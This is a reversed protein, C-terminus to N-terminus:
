PSPGVYLYYIRPTIIDLSFDSLEEQVERIGTPLFLRRLVGTSTVVDVPHAPDGTGGPRAFLDTVDALGPRSEIGNLLSEVPEVIRAFKQNFIRFVEVNVDVLGYDSIGALSAAKEIADTDGGVADVLGLRVAENGNYIRAQLLDERSIRLKDGREAAVTQYFNEKAQDLIRLFDRRSGGGSLKQPGTSIIRESPAPPILPGPFTIFVGVHGVWSGARAYTYNAGLSWKYAGSTALDGISIVVPKEDRLSSTERYVQEGSAGFSGPSSLKIVVAKIDDRRRAYDLFSSIVFAADEDIITFPIDIVGIKPKGPYVHFFVAYGVGVGVVAVLLLSVYWTTTIRWAASLTGM